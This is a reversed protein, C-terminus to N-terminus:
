WKIKRGLIWGHNLRSQLEDKPIKMSKKEEENYIWCTNYQSNKIGVMTSNKERMKEKSEDSHHKGKFGYFCKGYLPNKEGKKALSNNLRWNKNFNEDTKLKEVFAKSGAVTCKRQHEENIFGGFGGPKLNMNNSDKLMETTIIEKEANALAERSDFTKIIERRFNDQGYKRIARRLYTGSGLYGDELNNTSHMGYYYKENILNTTKYLYHYKKRKNEM